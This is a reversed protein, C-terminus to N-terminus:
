AVLADEAIGALWRRSFRLGADPPYPPDSAVVQHGERGLREAVEFTARAVEAAVRGGPLPHKVSVAIRLPPPPLSPSGVSRGALVDLVLAADSVTRALPGFATLGYWHSPAGGAPPVLGPAPKIGVIGCCAAPVRLSGGGDSGLAVAAMGTAVAVAGGGTSGGPTLGPHWPSRSVSTATETFPWIGFEAMRTKGVVVAGAGRLRRVLDDDAAAPRQPVAA